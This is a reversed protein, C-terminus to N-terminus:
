FSIQVGNLEVSDDARILLYRIGDITRTQVLEPREPNVQITVDPTHLEFKKMEVLNTPPLEADEGFTESFQERFAEVKEEPVGCHSLVREVTKGTVVLPEREKAEKHQEVLDTFHEKVAQVVEISCAEGLSEGLLYRFNEKQAAAPMPAESHFLAEILEPYNNEVSRTYLLTSYINASRDDFAPFLFGVEPASVLWDLVRDRFENEKFDYSLAPKTQKVPCISCILYNYVESSNDDQRDGDKSHWPVDYADHAILILYGTEMPLSQAVLDYFARIQEADQLKSNRLNMLRKHAEGSVVETTAFPLDVLNKGISGSLAKRLLALFRDQEDETMLALSQDFESVIERRDNVYCGLIHTISTKDHKFRRRLEGVEKENM